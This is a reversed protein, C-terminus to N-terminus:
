ALALQDFTFKYEVGGFRAVIIVGELRVVQGGSMPADVGPCGTYDVARGTTFDRAVQAEHNLLFAIEQEKRAQRDIFSATAPM